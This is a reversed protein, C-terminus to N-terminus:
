TIGRDVITNTDELPYDGFATTKGKTSMENSM